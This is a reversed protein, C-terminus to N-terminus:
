RVMTTEESLSKKELESQKSADDCQMQVHIVWQQHQFDRRLPEQSQVSEQNQLRQRAYEMAEYVSNQSPSDWHQNQLRNDIYNSWLVQRTRMGQGPFLNSLTAVRPCHTYHNMGCCSCIQSGQAILVSKLLIGLSCRADVCCSCWEFIHPKRLFGVFRKM